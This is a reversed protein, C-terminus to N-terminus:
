FLRRVPTAGGASPTDPLFIIRGDHEIAAIPHGLCAGLLDSRMVEAVPGARWTGGEFLLLAHTSGSWALNLDHGVSVVARGEERCLHALLGTM